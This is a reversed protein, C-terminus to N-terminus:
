QSTRPMEAFVEPNVVNRPVRGDLVAAMDESVMTFINRSAGVSLGMAHPTCLARPHSFIPHSVDPPEQPYVDLGVASLRGSELAEYVADLSEFLGGRALNVLIAGPKMSSLLKRGFLGKTSDNLPAHISVFDAQALLSDLDTLEIEAAEISDQSVLPDYALIRMQFAKAMRATERGIRGLGVIGLTAGKFDAIVTTDRAEWRGARTDRDLDPLRKALALMMAIAGEAVAVSGAGPTFVVPIGRATAAAIDVTDYGVGSRGIVRLEPAANILKGSIRTVGRALLGVTGPMLAILSEEDTRPAVLIKGFRGLTEEVVPPISGTAVIKTEGM